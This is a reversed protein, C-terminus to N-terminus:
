ASCVTCVEDTCVVKKEPKEQPTDKLNTLRMKSADITFKQAQAKPKSRLYYQGTKLGKEWAYFHMSTLKKSDPDDMFLNMSQSQCIFAGRDAAMDIIVRQKIEWVTKYLQKLDQPIAEINQISGDDIIIQDRIDKTWLDLKMLDQVLYNNVMIFEGALTKRKYINSTIPEFCENFGLIQSTSATPMPALLLSNRMGYKKIDEKLKNWDYRNSPQVNWMDFQLIGQSAPCGDFTEYAGPYKGTLSEYENPKLYGDKKLADMDNPNYTAIVESRKKAIEMSCEVSAHYITEFIDRNLTKAEESDFPYRLQIFTDALGQIGIGIPRHRLNSRRTKEVPYYNIDIVKNLNKTVVKTIEHLLEFNFFKNGNADEELFSPLALSALNCVATEKDDSYEIIETCLNSSKITGLNKQNSKANCADKYLMYPQGSEIQSELIKFWIKQAPVQKVYKGEEEYQLYLREFEDGYTSSLGKATNPCFLSWVGNDRVRKMFLDNIWLALFLDRCREEENGHPKRLELFGEIDAHWPEIYVANSGKRRGGQNVYRCTNNFVRLMPIIGTSTGNTGRILSGNSRIDHINMGMGGANKSIIAFEKLADYIGSEDAISDGVNMLFCSSLQPRKTGSNFLTPTAHIFYKKSMYNYTQIADKVDYGHIGLAVRMFMHQPREVAKGNVRFLYSRELTKFGFFDFMFDRNYDICNNLKDKNKMVVDYLEDSILPNPNGEHDTNNYLITITESFSPSTNKHHNSISIRSALKGYDPHSVILSSCISAALEDLECTKVGDFIRSIVKQAVEVPDVSLGYSLARIRSIVKDFSVDEFEGSRKLVRM